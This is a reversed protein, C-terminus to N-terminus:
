AVRKSPHDHARAPAGTAPVAPTSDFRQKWRLIPTEFWRFSAESVLWAAALCAGFRLELSELGLKGFLANVGHLAFMHYLYMGYSVVGIRKLPALSLPKRLAHGEGAVCSALLATMALQVMLRPTGSIDAAPNSTAALLLAGWVLPAGRWCVLRAVARFGRASHLLHALAVGFLIPTFTAQLIEFDDHVIGLSRQLFPDALRYNIAQSVLIGGVLLPVIARRCFKELPPWLLYFQEEAALSWTVALISSIEVWNSTYTLLYPLEGRFDSSMPSEPRLVLLLLALGALIGYYIPFIRLTRRAYFKALSIDGNRERERLLLTVILFGSIVFFMDVGLFGRQTAPLHSWGGHAHHWLVALISLARFGDLAGFTRTARFVEHTPATQM